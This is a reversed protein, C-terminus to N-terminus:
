GHRWGRTLGSPLSKPGSWLGGDAPPEALAERLAVEDEQSLLPRAGM